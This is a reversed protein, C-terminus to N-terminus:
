EVELEGQYQSCWRAVGCWDQVCRTCEGKREEVYHDKGLMQAHDDASDSADHLKIARARSKKMVAYKTPKQWREEQSCPPIKGETMEEFAAKQHVSVREEMWENQKEDSWLPIEVIVIPSQPYDHELAAKRRQWDRLAAIIQLRKVKMGKAHRVLWAYANLQKHWETKDFIVSWASTMKYDSVIVGDSEIQQLDIAGSVKWGQQEVFLREESVIEEGKKEAVEEFMHHMATGLTSFILESVDSEMDSDHRMQLVRVQPADILQTVTADSDGSNYHSTSLTEVVIEPLNHINTLKAM